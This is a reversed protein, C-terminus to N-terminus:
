MGVMNIVLKGPGEDVDIIQRPYGSLCGANNTPPTALEPDM